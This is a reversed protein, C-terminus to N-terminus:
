VLRKARNITMFATYRLSSYVSLFRNFTLLSLNGTSSFMAFQVIIAFIAIL